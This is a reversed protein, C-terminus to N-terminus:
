SRLICDQSNDSDLRKSYNSVKPRQLEGNKVFAIADNHKRTKRKIIFGATKTDPTDCKPSGLRGVNGTNYYCHITLVQNLESAVSVKSIIKPDTVDSYLCCLPQFGSAATDMGKFNTDNLQLHSQPISPFWLASDRLSIAKNPQDNLIASATESSTESLTEAIALSVM